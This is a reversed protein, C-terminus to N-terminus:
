NELDSCGCALGVLHKKVRVVDELDSVDSVDFLRIESIHDDEGGRM